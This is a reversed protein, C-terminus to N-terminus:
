QKLFYFTEPTFTELIQASKWLDQLKLFHTKWSFQKVFNEM